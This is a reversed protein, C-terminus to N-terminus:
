SNSYPALTAGTGYERRWKGAHSCVVVQIKKGEAERKEEGM